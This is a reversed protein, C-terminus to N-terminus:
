APLPVFRRLKGTATRELAPVVAAKVQPDRLGLRALAATIEGVLDDLDVPGAARVHIDAGRATQAVRYEVVHRRRALASRFVHPHVARGDYTFRDDLRGQVDAIRRHPSGCRCPGTLVTVEDTVEYRILPLVRNYLNTVLVRASPTGPPVAAYADDVPEVLALDECLHMGEGQGCSAAFAGESCGWVNEVPRGWAEELAARTEPLLPEAFSVVREPGIHLDGALAAFALPHLASPYGGLMAPQVDNLRAVIEATPLTVPLLAVDFAADSFTQAVANSMHSPHAAAVSAVVFREPRSGGQTEAVQRRIVGAYWTAWGDWDYVFVARRGTSGGSAVAHYRELLYAPGATLSELHAEVLDLTLRDDTVIEDFHEMLDAKTMVPVDGLTDPDLRDLDLHGLRKAHWPSHAVAFRVLATLEARRHAALREATWTLREVHGAILAQADAAHQQRRAEYQPRAHRTVGVITASAGPGPM